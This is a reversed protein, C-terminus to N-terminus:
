ITLREEKIQTFGHGIIKEEQGRRKGTRSASKADECHVGRKKEHNKTEKTTLNKNSKM